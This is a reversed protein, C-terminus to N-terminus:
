SVVARDTARLWDTGDSFALVAGGTEDEVFITHGKMGVPDPLTAVTYIAASELRRLRREVAQMFRQLSGPQAGTATLREM